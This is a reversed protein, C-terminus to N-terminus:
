NLQGKQLLAKTKFILAALIWFFGTVEQSDLRSGFMNCVLLGVIGAMFGLAFSKILKDKARCYVYWCNKFIIALILLFLILAPLGLEAAIILFANHADIEYIPAYFPIKKSFLGFGVGIFPHDKIMVIGGEWAILRNRASPELNEKIDDSIITNKKSFTSSFREYIASPLITPNILALILFISILLFIGKNKVLSIFLWSAIFALLAGRSFTYMLARASILIPFILLWHKGSRLNLLFYAVLFFGYYVFFAGANNPQGFILGVRMRDFDEAGRVSLYEFVLFISLFATILIILAIIKKIETKNRITILFIFFLLIPTIWEKLSSIYEEFYAGGYLNSNIIFSLIPIFIFFIAPINISSKPVISINSNLKEIMVAMLTLVLFINTLNLAWIGTGFDGPLFRSFPLYLIFALLFNDLNVMAMISLVMIASIGLVIILPKTLTIVDLAILGFFIALFSFVIYLFYSSRKNKTIMKNM